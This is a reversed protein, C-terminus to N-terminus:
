EEVYQQVEEKRKKGGDRKGLKNLTAALDPQYTDPNKQTLERRIKLAEEFEKRAAEPRNQDRDLIALDNLTAALDPQYTDPNKQSIERGCKQVGTVSWDRIDDET